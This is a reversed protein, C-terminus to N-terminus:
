KIRPTVIAAAITVVIIILAAIGLSILGDDPLALWKLGVTLAIIFVVLGIIIHLWKLGSKGTYDKDAMYWFGGIIIAIAIIALLLAGLSAIGGFMASVQGFGAFLDFSRTISNYGAFAAAGTMFVLLVVIWNIFFSKGAYGFM